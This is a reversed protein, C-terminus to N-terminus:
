AEPYPNAFQNLSAPSKLARPAKPQTPDSYGLKVVIETRINGPIGLIRKLAAEPYSKVFGVGLGLATAALAINEASAGADFIATPDEEAAVIDTCIVILTPCSGYFGPSARRVEEILEADNVVLFRRTDVNCGTPARRAAYLLKTIIDPPLPDRKFIRTTRRHKLVDFFSTPQNM